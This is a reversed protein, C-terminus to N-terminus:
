TIIHHLQAPSLQPAIKFIQSTKNQGKREFNLTKIIYLICVLEFPPIKPVFSPREASNLGLNYEHVLM